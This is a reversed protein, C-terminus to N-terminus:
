ANLLRRLAANRLPHLDVVDNGSVFYFLQGDAAPIKVDRLQWAAKRRLDAKSFTPVMGDCACAWAEDVMREFAKTTNSPAPPINTLDM